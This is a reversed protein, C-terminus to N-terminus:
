PTVRRYLERVEAQAQERADLEALSGILKLCAPCDCMEACTTVGEGATYEAGCLPLASFISVDIPSFHFTTM